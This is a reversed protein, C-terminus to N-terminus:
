APIAEIMKRPPTKKLTYGSAGACIAAITKDDDEFVTPMLIRVDPFRDKIIRVAEIGSMGPMNIDTTVVDRGAQQMIEILENADAFGGTCIMGEASNILQVLSDRLKKNDEFVAVRIAM